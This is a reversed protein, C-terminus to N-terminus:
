DSGISSLAKDLIDLAKDVEGNGIILPPMFRLANPKLRNVLLGRELCAMLASQGIDSSFEIAMLLGRGRVDTIFEFKQKLGELGAIFYAGVKKVNSVIDNDIIKQAFMESESLFGYGPHVSQIEERLCIATIQDIDLYGPIKGDEVLQFSEDALKVHLANKDVATYIAYTKIDLERAARIIRVAIEGRNAVLLSDFM